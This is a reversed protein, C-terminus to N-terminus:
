FNHPTANSQGQETQGGRWVGLNQRCLGLSELSSLAVIPQGLRQVVFHSAPEMQNGELKSPAGTISTSVHVYECRITKGFTEFM